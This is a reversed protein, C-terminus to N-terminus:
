QNSGADQHQMRQVWLLVQAVAEILDDPIYDNIPTNGLLNRALSVDRYIPVGAEEAAQRIAKAVEGEGKAVVMPIPTKQPDYHLAVAVHTPNVIVVSSTRVRNLMDNFNIEQHMQKRRGRLIPDGEREKYERKVEEKSMRHRRMYDWRQYALDFLAITGFILCCLLLMAEFQRGGISLWGAVPVQQARVLLPLQSRALMWLVLGLAILKIGLRILEIVTRWAFIRKLGELPNLHTADFKIKSWSMVGGVQLASAIVSVLVSAVAAVVAWLGLNTMLTRVRQVVDTDKQTSALVADNMGQVLWALAPKAGLIAALTFVVIAVTTTFDKSQWVDGQRRADRLKKSTPQETKEQASSGSDAM